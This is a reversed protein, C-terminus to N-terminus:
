KKTLEGEWDMVSIGEGIMRLKWTGGGQFGEWKGTGKIHSWTGEM